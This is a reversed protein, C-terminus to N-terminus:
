ALCPFPTRKSRPHTTSQYHDPGLFKARHLEGSVGRDLICTLKLKLVGSSASTAFHLRRAAVLSIKLTLARIPGRPAVVCAVFAMQLGQGGHERTIKAELVVPAFSVFSGCISQSRSLTPQTRNPQAQHSPQERELCLWGVEKRSCSLVADAPCLLDKPRRSSPRYGQHNSCCHATFRIM